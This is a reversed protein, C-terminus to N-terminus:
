VSAFFWNLLKGDIPLVIRLAAFSRERDASLDKAASLIVGGGRRQGSVRNIRIDM